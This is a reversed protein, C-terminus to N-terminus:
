RQMEKLSGLKATERLFIRSQRERSVSKELHRNLFWLALISIIILLSFFFFLEFYRRQILDSLGTDIGQLQVFAADIELTMASAAAGDGARLAEKLRGM